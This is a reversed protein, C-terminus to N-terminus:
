PDHTGNLLQNQFTIAVAIWRDHDADTAAFRHQHLWDILDNRGATNPPLMSIAQRVTGNPAIQLIFRWLQSNMEHTLPPHFDPPNAALDGIKSSLPYLVPVTRIAETDIEPYNPPDIKPFVRQGQTLIPVQPIADTAPLPLFEPVYPETNRDLVDKLAADVMAQSPEWRAPDFRTPFPGSALARGILDMPDMSQGLMIAKTSRAEQVPLNGVVIRLTLLPMTFVVAAIALIGLKGLWPSKEARWHFVLGDRDAAAHFETRINSKM